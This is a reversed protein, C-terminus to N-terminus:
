DADDPLHIYPQGDTTVLRAGGPSLMLNTGGCGKSRLGIVRGDADKIWTDEDSPDIWESLPQMPPGSLKTM